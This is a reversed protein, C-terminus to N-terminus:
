DFIRPNRNTERLHMKGCNKPGLNIRSTRHHYRRLEDYMPKSMEAYGMIINYKKGKLMKGNQGITIKDNEFNLITM